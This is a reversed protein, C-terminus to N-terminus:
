VAAVLSTSFAPPSFFSTKLQAIRTPVFTRSRSRAPLRTPQSSRFCYSIASLCTSELIRASNPPRILFQTVPAAGILGSM